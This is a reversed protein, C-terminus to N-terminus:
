EFSVNRQLDIADEKMEKEFNDFFSRFSLQMKDFTLDKKKFSFNKIREGYFKNIGRFDVKIEDQKKRRILSPSFGLSSSFNKNLEREM